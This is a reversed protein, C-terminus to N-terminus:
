TSAGEQLHGKLFARSTGCLNIILKTYIVVLIVHTGAIVLGTSIEHEAPRIGIDESASLLQIRGKSLAARGGQLVQGCVVTRILLWHEGLRAHKLAM